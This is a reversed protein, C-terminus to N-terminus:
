WRLLLRSCPTAPFSPQIPMGNQMFPPVDAVHAPRMARERAEPGGFAEAAMLVMVPRLRKGGAALAYSIPEYLLSLKGTPLELKRLEGEIIASYDSVREM